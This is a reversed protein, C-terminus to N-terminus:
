SPPANREGKVNRIKAARQPLSDLANRPGVIGKFVDHLVNHPGCQPLVNILAVNCPARQPAVSATIRVKEVPQGRYEVLVRIRPGHNCGEAESIVRLAPM